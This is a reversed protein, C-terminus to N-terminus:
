RVFHNKQPVEGYIMSLLRNFSNGDFLALLKGSRLIVDRRGRGHGQPSGMGCVLALHARAPAACTVCAVRGAGGGSMVGTTRLGLLRAVPGLLM